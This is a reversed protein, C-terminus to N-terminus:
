VNKVEELQKIQKETFLKNGFMQLTEKSRIQKIKIKM